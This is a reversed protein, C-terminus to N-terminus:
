LIFLTGGISTLGELGMLNDLMPNPNFFHGIQLDGGVFNLNELGTLNTLSPNGWVKFNGGITTLISLGNLNTINGRVTDSDDYIYVNGLIETCEPYDSQFADIQAQSSFTIGDPLCTSCPESSQAKVVGSIFLAILFICFKKM